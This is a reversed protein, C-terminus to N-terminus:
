CCRAIPCPRVCHRCSASRKSAAVPLSVSFRTPCLDVTQSATKLGSPLFITLPLSSPVSFSQSAVFPRLIRDMWFEPGSIWFVGRKMTLTAKLWSPLRIALARLLVVAVRHSAAVPRGIM